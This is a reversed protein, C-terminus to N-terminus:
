ADADDGDDGSGDTLLEVDEAPEDVLFEPAGDEDADEASERDEDATRESWRRSRRSDFGHCM